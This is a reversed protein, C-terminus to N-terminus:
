PLRGYTPLHKLKQPVRKLKPIRRPRGFKLPKRVSEEDQEEQQQDDQDTQKEPQENKRGKEHDKENGRDHNSFGHLKGFKGIAGRVSRAPKVRAQASKPSGNRRTGGRVLASIPRRIRGGKVEIQQRYTMLSSQEDENQNDPRQEGDAPGDKERNVIDGRKENTTFGSSKERASIPNTGVLGAAFLTLVAYFLVVRTQKMELLDHHTSSTRIM